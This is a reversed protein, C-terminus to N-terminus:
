GDDGLSFKLTNDSNVPLSYTYKGNWNASPSYKDSQGYSAPEWNNASTLDTGYYGAGLDIQNRPAPAAVQAFAISAAAALLLVVIAKRMSDGKKQAAASLRTRALARPFSFKM